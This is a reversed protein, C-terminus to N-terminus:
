VPIGPGHESRLLESHIRDEGHQEEKPNRPCLVLGPTEHGAISRWAPLSKDILRQDQAWRCPGHARATAAATLRIVSNANYGVAM